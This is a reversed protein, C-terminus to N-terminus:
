ADFRKITINISGDKGEGAIQLPLVKGVLTMFAAPNEASQKLLYEAGGAKELAQTVMEKIAATTKNPVGKRRGKGANTLNAVGGHVKGSNQQGNEM